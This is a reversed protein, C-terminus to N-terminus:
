TFSGDPLLRTAKEIIGLHQAWAAEDPKDSRAGAKIKLAKVEKLVL